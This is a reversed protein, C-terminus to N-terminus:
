RVRPAEGRRLVIQPLLGAFRPASARSRPASRDPSGASAHAACRACSGPRAAEGLEVGAVHRVGRIRLGHRIQENESRTSSRSLWAIVAPRPHVAASRPPSRDALADDTVFRITHHDGTVLFRGQPELEEAPEGNMQRAANPSSGGAEAPRNVSSAASGARRGRSRRRRRRGATRGCRSRLPPMRVTQPRKAAPAAAQSTPSTTKSTRPTRHARSPAGRDGVGEVEQEVRRHHRAENRSPRSSRRSCLGPCASSTTITIPPTPSSSQVSTRCVDSLAAPSGVVCPPRCRRRRGRAEAEQPHEDERHEVGLGAPRRRARQDAQANAPITTASVIQTVVGVSAYPRIADDDSARQQADGGGAVRGRTGGSRSGRLRACAGGSRRSRPRRAHPANAPARIVQAARDAVARGHGRGRRPPAAPAPAPM